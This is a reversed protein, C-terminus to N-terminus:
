RRPGAYCREMFDLLADRGLVDATDDARRLTRPYATEVDMVGAHRVGSRPARHAVDSRQFDLSAGSELAEARSVGRIM